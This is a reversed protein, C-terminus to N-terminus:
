SAQRHSKNRKLFPIFMPTVSQYDAYEKGFIRRLKREEFYAGVFVYLTLGINIALINATMLPLLWIFVLGASYQPHRVYRNLGSTFLTQGPKEASGLFPRLGIFDLVDIQWLNIGIVAVAVLEGLVMLGSWPLPVLYLQRDSTLAAIILVPIFSVVAIFNYILRYFRKGREGMARRVPKKVDPSALLSHILGWILVSLVLWVMNLGLYDNAPTQSGRWLFTM